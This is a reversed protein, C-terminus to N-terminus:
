SQLGSGGPGASASESRPNNVYDKLEKSPKFYPIKKAPVEVKAGTKPNRGTRGRRQRTRFSGFGRIEIKDDAQLAGIISEFIIEVAAESEKRPLETVRTVEEVLDAKTMTHDKQEAGASDPM